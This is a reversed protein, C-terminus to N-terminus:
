TIDLFPRIYYLQSYRHLDNSKVTEYKDLEVIAEITNNKFCKQCLVHDCEICIRKTGSITRGFRDINESVANSKCDKCRNEEKVSDENRIDEKAVEVFEMSHICSFKRKSSGADNILIGKM